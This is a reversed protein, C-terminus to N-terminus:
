LYYKGNVINLLSRKGNAYIVCNTHLWSSINGVYELDKRALLGIQYAGNYIGPSHSHAVITKDSLKAYSLLSGRAGNPGVHGHHACDIGGIFFSKNKDLFLGPKNSSLYKKGWYKFPDSTKSGGGSISSNKCMYLATELYFEANLPDERWDQEKIWRALADPHNSNPFVPIADGAIKSVYDFAGKVESLVDGLGSKIKSVANFPDKRHHHNRAYFDLVDHFVVYEPRLKKLMSNKGTFTASVASSDYFPYHLDGAVLGLAPAAEFVGDGTYENELDIFSGDDVCNIQRLHFVGSKEVEVVCAANTHHFEGKKGDKSDTYNEVTVCGTTTMLKPTGDSPVPITKLQLKSHAVICSKHGSISELGSLPNVATPRIKIDGLVSLYPSIDHRLESMYPLLEPAWWEQDKESQSFISTPNKYRYPLVLLTANNFDCYQMLSKFFGKDVPTANQAATIVYRKSKKVRQTFYQTEVDLQKLQYTFTTRKMGLLEAAKSKNNDAKVLAAHFRKKKDELQKRTAM